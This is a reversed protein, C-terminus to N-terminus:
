DEHNVPNGRMMKEFKKLQEDHMQNLSSYKENRDMNTSMGIQTGEADNLISERKGDRHPTVESGTNRREM